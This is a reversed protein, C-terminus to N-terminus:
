YYPQSNPALPCVIIWLLERAKSFPLNTTETGLNAERGPEQPPLSLLPDPCSVVGQDYVLYPRPM